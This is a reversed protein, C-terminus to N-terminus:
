RTKEPAKPAIPKGPARAIRAAAERKQSAAFGATTKGNNTALKPGFTGTAGATRLARTHKQAEAVTGHGQATFRSRDLKDLRKMELSNVSKGATKQSDAYRTASSRTNVTYLSSSDLAKGGKAYTRTIKEGVHIDNGYGPRKPSFLLKNTESVSLKPDAKLRENRQRDIAVKSQRNQIRNGKVINNADGPHVGTELGIRHTADWGSKAATQRRINKDIRAGEQTRRANNMTPASITASSQKSTPTSPGHKIPVFGTPPTTKNGM